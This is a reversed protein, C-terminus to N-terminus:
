YLRQSAMVITTRGGSTARRTLTTKEATTLLDSFPTASAPIVFEKPSSYTANAPKTGPVFMFGASSLSSSSWPVQANGTEARVADRVRRLMLDIDLGPVKMNALLNKTFVGNRGSGDQATANPQTAYIIYSGAPQVGVVALGRDGLARAAGPFPNTLDSSCM